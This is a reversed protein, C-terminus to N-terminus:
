ERYAENRYLDLTAGKTVLHMDSRGALYDYRRYDDEHAVILYKIHLAALQKGLDDTREANPLLRALTRKAPSPKSLAAGMFEPDDSVIVPKDFFLPAPNAITREAFGFRMYLHWPLFLTQFSGSDHTLKANVASWDAPYHVPKLQGNFGYLMTPTWVFPLALLLVAAGVAFLRGGQEQCYASAASVGRAAFVAYALAILAVFKEPERYGALLPVYAAPWGGLIGIALLGGMLASVGFVAVTLRQRARWWSVGGTIVLAWVMLGILGWAPVHAQPLDYMGRAEVWFGQLRVINGIKGAVNGGVTAFASQDAGSMGAVQTAVAGKGLLLPVLWYGSAVLFVGIVILGFKWVRARWRIDRRRWLAVGLATAALVAMMGISHVSVVSIVLACGALWLATAWGPGALFRLLLRVFWPLLAYGLLVEYQGAMFRDYTFPNVVYFVGAIYAGINTRLSADARNLHQVLQHMGVGALLLIAFLLLKQIVDSPLVSNLGHMLAHFLYGNSSDTPMRLRPTFVMDLTLIFGPKLLPGLVVLALVGYWLWAWSLLLRVRVRFTESSLNM